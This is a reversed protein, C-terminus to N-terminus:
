LERGTLATSSSYFKVAALTPTSCQLDPNGDVGHATVVRGRDDDVSCHGGRAVEIRSDIENAPVGRDLLGQADM